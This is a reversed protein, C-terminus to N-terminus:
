LLSALWLVGGLGAAAIVVTGLGAGKSPSHLKVANSRAQQITTCYATRASVALFFTKQNQELTRLANAPDNAVDQPGGPAGYTRANRLVGLEWGEQRLAEITVAESVGCSESLQKITPNVVENIYKGVLGAYQGVPSISPDPIANVLEYAVGGIFGGVAAGIAGGIPGGFVTGAAAGAVAGIAQVDGKTPPWSSQAARDAAADRAANAAAETQADAM